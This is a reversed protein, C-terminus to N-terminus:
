EWHMRELPTGFKGSGGLPPPSGLVLACCSPTLLERNWAAALAQAFTSGLVPDNWCCAWCHMVASLQEGAM